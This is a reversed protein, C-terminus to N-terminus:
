DAKVGMIGAMKAMDIDDGSPTGGTPLTPHKIPETAGFFSKMTDDEKYAKISDEVGIPKNDKDFNFKDIGGAKYIIYDPDTAGSAKLQEKLAATKSDTVAKETMETIKTEYDKIKKNLADTDSSNKKLDTITSNATDLQGKVNTLEDQVPKVKAQEATIDKGNEDMIQDIQEKTLGMDELFKRKM